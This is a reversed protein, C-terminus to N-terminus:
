GQSLTRMDVYDGSPHQELQSLLDYFRAAFESPSVVKSQLRLADVCVIHEFQKKNAKDTLEQQMPTDVLGPAFSIFTVSPHEAAYTLVLMNLAAKSVAYGGWGVGSDVSAGSSMVVVLKLRPISCLLEDILIKQAWLNVDMQKQLDRLSLEQLCALEGLTGANLIAIDVAPCESLALAVRDPLSDLQALDIQYHALPNNSLERAVLQTLGAQVNRRSLGTVRDGQLLCHKALAEGIGSSVGTIFFHKM